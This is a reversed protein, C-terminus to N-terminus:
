PTLWVYTGRVDNVSFEHGFCLTIGPLSSGEAQSHWSLPNYKVASWWAAYFRVRSPSANRWNSNNTRYTVLWDNRQDAPHNRCHGRQWSDAWWQANTGSQRLVCGGSYTCDSHTTAAAAPTAMPMLACLLVLLQVVTWLTKRM